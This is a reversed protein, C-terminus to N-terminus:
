AKDLRETLEIIDGQRSRAIEKATDLQVLLSEITPEM